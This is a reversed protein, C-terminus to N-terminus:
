KRIFIERQFMRDAGLLLTITVVLPLGEPVIAMAVSIVALLMYRLDNGLVLGTMFIFAIASGGVWALSRGLADLRRQLPTEEQKVQLILDAIKGLETRMGTEVVLALGRGQTVVSGMYAMNRRDSLPLDDGSLAATHKEMGESEASLASSQIRLNVAELLRLDAPVINRVELQVIDGPVLECAPLESSTGNRLVRVNPVSIKKLAAIVKEARYEQVLGALAYLGALLVIAIRDNTDGIIGALLAASILILVMPSRAQKWLIQLVTRGGREVLENVGDRSVRENVQESSLGTETSSDLEAIAATTELTHWHITKEM